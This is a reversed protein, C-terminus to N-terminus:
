SFVSLWHVTCYTQDFEAVIHYPLPAGDECVSESFGVGGCEVGEDSHPEKGGLGSLPVEDPLPGGGGGNDGESGASPGADM